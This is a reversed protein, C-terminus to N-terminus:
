GLERIARLDGDTLSPYHFLVAGQAGAERVGRVLEPLIDPQSPAAARALGEWVPVRGGVLALHSVTRTVAYRLSTTYNMPFLYDIIGREAWQVWDQGQIYICDPYGAFVAASLKMGLNETLGHLREVFGTIKSVRWETWEEVGKENLYWPTWKLEDVDLGREAMERKCYECRCPEGTRIYDLHLGDPRYGEAVSRYLDYEYDQVEPRCACAWHEDPVVAAYEPHEKILKSQEGEKFVCFWAHVKIGRDHCSDILVRLPDWDPYLPNVDAVDTFFDASAPPNKVCPILLDFGADALRDVHGPIDEEKEGFNGLSHAWAALRFDKMSIM